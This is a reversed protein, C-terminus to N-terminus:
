MFKLYRQEYSGQEAYDIAKKGEKDTITIDPKMDIIEGFYFNSKELISIMLPTQGLSNQINPNLANRKIAKLAEYNDELVALHLLTNGTYSDQDNVGLTANNLATRLKEADLKGDTSYTEKLNKVKKSSTNISSNPTTSTINNSPIATNSITSSEKLSVQSSTVSEVSYGMANATDRVPLFLKGNINMPRESLKVQTGNVVIKVSSQTAKLYTAAGVATGATLTIGVVAGLLFAPVKTTLKKM